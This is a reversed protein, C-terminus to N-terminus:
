EICFHVSEACLRRERFRRFRTVIGMMAKMYNIMKMSSKDLFNEEKFEKKRLLKKYYSVMGFYNGKLNECAII